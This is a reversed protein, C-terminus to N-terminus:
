SDCRPRWSWCARSRRSATSSDLAPRARSLPLDMKLRSPQPELWTCVAGIVSVTKGLGMEDALLLGRRGPTLLRKIAVEQFPYPTLAEAATSTRSSLRHCSLGCSLRRLSPRLLM